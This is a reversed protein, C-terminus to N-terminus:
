SSAEGSTIELHRGEAAAMVKFTDGVSLDRALTLQEDVVTDSHDPDYHFLALQKVGAMRAMELADEVTSHGWHYRGVMEYELFQSDHVLIDSKRACYALRVLYENTFTKDPAPGGMGDGVRVQRVRGTDTYVTAACGDAEIRYGVTIGPHNLQVTEIHFDGLELKDGPEFSIYEFDAMMDDFPVPFNLDAHQGALIDRIHSGTQGASAIVFRNGPRNFPTFFPFGLIHDWHTHGVLITTEGQGAGFVQEMLSQGLLRIGSGGDLILSQGSRTLFYLCTTNGGYQVQDRRAIPYSGRVGYFTLKMLIRQHYNVKNWFEV